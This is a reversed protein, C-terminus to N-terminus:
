YIENPRFSYCETSYPSYECYDDDDWNIRCRENKPHRNKCDRCQCFENACFLCMKERPTLSKM